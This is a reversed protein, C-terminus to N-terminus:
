SHYKKIHLRECFKNETLYIKLKELDTLNFDKIKKNTATYPIRLTPNLELQNPLYDKLFDRFARQRIRNDQRETDPYFHPFLLNEKIKQFRSIGPKATKKECNEKYHNLNGIIWKPNYNTLSALRFQNFHQEEDFEVIFNYPESFWIDVYQIENKENYLNNNVLVDLDFKNDTVSQYKEKIIQWGNIFKEKNPHTTLWDFEKEFFYNPRIKFNDHLVQSVTDAILKLKSM